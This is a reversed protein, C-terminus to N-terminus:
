VTKVLKEKSALTGEKKSREVHIIEVLDDGRTHEGHKQGRRYSKVEQEVEQVSHGEAIKEGTTKLIAKYQYM